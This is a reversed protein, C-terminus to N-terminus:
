RRETSALGHNSLVALVLSASTMTVAAITRPDFALRSVGMAVVNRTRQAKSANFMGFAQALHNPDRRLLPEDSPAFRLPRPRPRPPLSPPM